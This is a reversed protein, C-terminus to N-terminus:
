RGCARGRRPARGRWRRGGALSRRSTRREQAGHRVLQPRREVRDQDRRLEDGVRHEPRQGLLPGAVEAGRDLPAAAVQQPQDVVHDVQGPDLRTADVEADHPQREGGQQALDAALDAREGAVPADRKSHSHSGSRMIWASGSRIRWTSTLRSALATLNQRAPRGRTPRRGPSRGLVDLDRHMVGPHPDPVLIELADELGEVLHGLNDGRARSQPERDGTAQHSRWPPRSVAVLVCPM